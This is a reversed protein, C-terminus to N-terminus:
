GVVYKRASGLPGIALIVSGIRDVGIALGLQRALVRDDRGTDRVQDQTGTPNESRSSLIEEASDDGQSPLLFSDKLAGPVGDATVTVSGNQLDRSFAVNVYPVPVPGAASPTKCVDPGGSIATGDSRRHVITLSNISVTPIM